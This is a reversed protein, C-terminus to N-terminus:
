LLYVLLLAALTHHHSGPLLSCLESVSIVSPCLIVTGSLPKLPPRLLQSELQSWFSLFCGSVPPPLPCCKRCPFSSLESLFATLRFLLVFPSNARASASSTPLSRIVYVHSDPSFKTKCELIFSFWQLTKILPPVPHLDINASPIM